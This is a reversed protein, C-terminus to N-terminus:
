RVRRSRRRGGFFSWKKTSKKAHKSHRTHRKRSSKRRRHTRRRRRGGSQGPCGPNVAIANGESPNAHQADASGFVSAGYQTAGM